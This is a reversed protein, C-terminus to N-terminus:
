GVRSQASVLVAAARTGRWVEEASQKLTTGRNRRLRVAPLFETRHSARGQAADGNGNFNGRAAGGLNGPPLFQDSLGLWLAHGNVDAASIADSGHITLRGLIEKSHHGGAAAPVNPGRFSATDLLSGREVRSMFLAWAARGLWSMAAQTLWAVLWNMILAQRWFRLDMRVRHLESLARRRTEDTELFCLVQQLYIAQDFLADGFDLCTADQVRFEIQQHPTGCGAGAPPSVAGEM